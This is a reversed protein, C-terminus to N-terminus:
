VMSQAVAVVVLSRAIVPLASVVPVIRVSEEDLAPCVEPLYISRACVPTVVPNVPLRRLMDEVLVVPAAVKILKVAFADVSPVPSFIEIVPKVPPVPNDIVPPPAFIIAAPSNTSRTIPAAVTPLPM